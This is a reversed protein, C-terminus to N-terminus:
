KKNSLSIRFFGDTVEKTKDTNFGKATFSFKGEAWNDDVKTLEMEGKTGTWLAVDDNLRIEALGHGDGLKQKDSALFNRRDYYPLSISEGNNEGVILGARDPPMMATAKWEKGDIKATLTIGSESTPLSGPSNQKVMNQIDNAKTAANNGSNCSLLFMCAVVILLSINKKM